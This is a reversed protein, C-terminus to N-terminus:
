PRGGRLSMLFAVVDDIEQETLRGAYGPMSSKGWEKRLDTLESKFFSHLEGSMDRIQISFTDENVRVGVVQQGARTARVMVFNDPINVDSRFVEPSKPVDADPSTLSTKLHAPGRRLAIDTLDPGAAGGHGHISHCRACGGQGRYIQEGRQANGQSPQPPIKGLQRVWDAVQAIEDTSLAANPMLTGPVGDRIVLLLAEPTSARALTPVALTPGRGGEGNPGHCTACNARFLVQGRPADGQLASLSVALVSLTAIILLVLLAHTPAGAARWITARM